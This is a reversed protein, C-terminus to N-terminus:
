SGFVEGLQDKVADTFAEGLKVEEESPNQRERATTFIEALKNSTENAYFRVMGLTTRQDFIITFLTREGVLSIQIHQDKSGQHSLVRFEGEGLLRAMEKTAAFSGAVLAAIADLNLQPAEGKCTVLHGDRDILMASKANSLALFEELVRDIAEVDETYFVLRDQRLREDSKNTNQTV